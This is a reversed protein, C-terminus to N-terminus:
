ETLEGFIKKAKAIDADQTSKDGGFLIAIVEGKNKFYVRYGPGYDIVMESFGDGVPRVEGPNGAILRDVRALVKAKVRFDRLSNLWKLYEETRKVLVMHLKYAVCSTNDVSLM